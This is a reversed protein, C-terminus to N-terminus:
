PGRLAIRELAARVREVECGLPADGDLCLRDLAFRDAGAARLLRAHDRKVAQWLGPAM